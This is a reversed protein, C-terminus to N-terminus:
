CQADTAEGEEWGWMPSPTSSSLEESCEEPAENFSSCVVSLYSAPDRGSNAMVGNIVLSPSGKVGYGESLASDGVYYSDANTGLCSDLKVKDINTKTLCRDSDGDELFCKLYDLYKDSQEERLCIQIPTETEEPEHMFYHVFKIDGDIKDGLLELVPIMGKEAQTGYPCHTMIFLEVVPKDSKPVDAPQPQTQSDMDDITLPVMPIAGQVFYEGDKTMYVPIEQEQYSVIVEYLNDGFTKHSVYEVGEDGTRANLYDVLKGGVDGEAIVNGTIGGGRFLLIIIVILLVGSVIMWPNQKAKNVIKSADLKDPNNDIKVETKEPKEEAEQKVEEQVKEESKGENTEEM